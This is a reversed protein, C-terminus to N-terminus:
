AFVETLDEGEHEDRMRRMLGPILFLDLVLWGFWIFLGIQAVPPYVLAALISVFLVTLQNWAGKSDGCYFRHASAIAGFWWFVYARPITREEIPGGWMPKKRKQKPKPKRKETASSVASASAFASKHAPRVEESASYEGLGESARRARESAIFAERKATIEADQANAANAPAHIQRRAPRASGGGQPVGKRGFSM